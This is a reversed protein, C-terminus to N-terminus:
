TPYDRSAWARRSGSRGGRPGCIFPDRLTEYISQARACFRRYGEAEGAGAFVGIANASREIDSFLDLRAGNGWAHRALRDTRTLGVADSLAAGAEEFLQEFVWRMTLVTPGVDIAKGGAEVERMKGGPRLASELVTVRAGRAALLAAAALGGMGAGVIVIRPDM